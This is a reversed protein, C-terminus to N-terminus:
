FYKDRKSVYSELLFKVLDSFRNSADYIFIYSTYSHSQKSKSHLLETIDSCERHNLFGKRINLSSKNAVVSLIREGDRKKTKLTGLTYRVM